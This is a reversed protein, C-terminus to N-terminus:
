RTLCVGFWVSSNSSSRVTANSFTFSEIGSLMSGVMVAKMWSSTAPILFCGIEGFTLPFQDLRQEVSELFLLKVEALRRDLKVVLSFGIQQGRILAVVERSQTLALAGVCLFVVLIEEPPMAIFQLLLGREFRFPIAEDEAGGISVSSKM